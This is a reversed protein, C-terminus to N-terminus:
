EMFKLFANALKEHSLIGFHGDRGEDWYMTNNQEPNLIEPCYKLSKLDTQIWQSHSSLQQLLKVDYLECLMEIYRMTQLQYVPGVKNEWDIVFDAQWTNDKINRPMETFIFHKNQNDFGLWSFRVIDPWLVIIYKTKLGHCQNKLFTSINHGVWAFDTGAVAFNYAALNLREAVVNGFRKEEPIGVGMSFSCGFTAVCETNEVIDQSRFGLNNFRYNINETYNKNFTPYDPHDTSFYNVTQGKIGNDVYISGFM